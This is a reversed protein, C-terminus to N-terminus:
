PIVLREVQTVAARKAVYAPVLEFAHAATDAEVLWWIDHGGYFCSAAAQRQRLPSVFGQFSAFVAGCEAPEHRHHIVFAPVEDDHPFPGALMM